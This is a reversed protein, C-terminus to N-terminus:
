ALSIDYDRSAASRAMSTFQSSDLIADRLFVRAEQMLKLGEISEKLTDQDLIMHMYKLRTLHDRRAEILNARNLGLVEISVKGCRNGNKAYAIEQRFGIYPLPDTQAPHILLPEERLVDQRHSKARSTPNSLPFIARKYRQNCTSCALLLNEWDYALWYYGPKELRSSKSQRVGGKPRFHEIDGEERVIRECFCCKGYQASILAAKVTPDGYIAADFTFRLRGADYDAPSEEYHRCHDMKKTLGRGLLIAPAAAPKSIKIM